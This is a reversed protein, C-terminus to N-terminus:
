LVTEVLKYLENKGLKNAILELCTLRAQHFMEEAKTYGVVNVINTLENKRADALDDAIQFAEGFSTALESWFPAFNQTILSASFFAFSFLEGTKLQHIKRILQLDIDQFTLDLVQGRVMGQFGSAKALQKILEIKINEALECSALVSFAETLLADGALIAVAEGFAIHLTPKGRRLEDNDMAPLDDHLLSYTHIMELSCAVDLGLNIECGLDHLSSLLLLPRLRKGGSFIAYDLAEQLEYAQSTIEKLRKNILEIFDNKMM